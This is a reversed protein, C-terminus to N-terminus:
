RLADAGRVSGSRPARRSIYDAAAAPEAETLPEPLPGRVVVGPLGRSGIVGGTQKKEGGGEERNEKEGTGCGGRTGICRFDGGPM